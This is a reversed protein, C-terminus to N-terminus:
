RFLLLAGCAAGCGLLFVKNASLAPQQDLRSVASPGHCHVWAMVGAWLLGAPPASGVEFLVCTEWYFIPLWVGLASGKDPPLLWHCDWGTHTRAQPRLATWHHHPNEFVRVLLELALLKGAHM